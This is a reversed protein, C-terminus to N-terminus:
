FEGFSSVFLGNENIGGMYDIADLGKEQVNKAYWTVRASRM